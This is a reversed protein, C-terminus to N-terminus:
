FALRGMGHLRAARPALTDGVWVQCVRLATYPPGQLLRSASVELDARSGHLSAATMLGNWERIAFIDPAGWQLAGPGAM